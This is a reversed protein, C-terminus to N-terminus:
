QRAKQQQCTKGRESDKMNALKASHASAEKGGHLMSHYWKLMTNAKANFTKHVVNSLLERCAKGPDVMHVGQSLVEQLKESWKPLKLTV